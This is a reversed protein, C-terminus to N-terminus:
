LAFLKTIEDAPFTPFPVPTGQNLAVLGDSQPTIFGIVSSPWGLSQWLHQLADVNEGCCTALLAGSAITGMPDLGSVACIRAALPPIPIADLDITMGVGAATALESLGSAVGGETPDHMATVLGNQAAALAPVAVSIGPSFLYNAAEAIEAETWGQALLESRKERAIISTGEIPVAGALLVVDGVQCDRSRVFQNRNVEGLMTGAVIAQDVVHTVESHGGAVVIGASRCADGIQQFIADAMGATASGAPLLLTPLYFRPTAGTVALDNACVNVAYFGIQDTAFTIPDSKAVLLRGDGGCFDIVAADEGVSPGLLLKPDTTPLADFLRGLLEPPLKGSVLLSRNKSSASPLDSMAGNYQLPQLPLLSTYDIAGQRCV